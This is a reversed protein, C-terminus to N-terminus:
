SCFDRLIKELEEKGEASIGQSLRMIDLEPLTDVPTETIRVPLDYGQEFVAVLGKYSKVIYIKKEAPTEEKLVETEECPEKMASLAFFSVSLASCIIVLVATILIMKKM